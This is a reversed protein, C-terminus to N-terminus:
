PATKFSRGKSLEIYNYRNDIIYPKTLFEDVNNYNPFKRVHWLYTTNRLLDFGRARFDSFKIKTKNTILRIVKHDNPLYLNYEYIAAGIIDTIEFASTDSINDAGEIPLKEFVSQTLSITLPEGINVLKWIHGPIYEFYYYGYDKLYEVILKIKFENLPIVPILVHDYMFWYDAEYIIFDSYKYYDPLSLCVRIISKRFSQPLEVNVWQTIEAPNYSIDENKFYLNPNLGKYITIDKIGFKDYSTLEGSVISAELYYIRGSIETKGPPLFIRVLVSDTGPYITKFENYSIFEDKSIFKACIRKKISLPPFKVYTKCDYYNYHVRNYDNTIIQPNNITIGSIKLIRSIYESVILDYPKNSVKLEFNGYYDTPVLPYEGNSVLCNYGSYVKGKIIIGEEQVPSDICGALVATLVTAIFIKFTNRKM